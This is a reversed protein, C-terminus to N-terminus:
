ASLNLNDQQIAPETKAAGLQVTGVRFKDLFKIPKPLEVLPQGDVMTTSAAEKIIDVVPSKRGAIIVSM